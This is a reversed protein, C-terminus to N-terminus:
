VGKATHRTESFAIFHEGPLEVMGFLKAASQKTQSQKPTLSFFEVCVNSLIRVVM